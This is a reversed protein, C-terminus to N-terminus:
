RGDRTRMPSTTRAADGDDPEDDDGDDSDDADSDPTTSPAATAAPNAGATATPPTATTCSPSPGNSSPPSASSTSPARTAKPKAAVPGLLRLRVLRHRTTRQADARVPEGMGDDYHTRIMRVTKQQQKRRADAGDPDVQAVARRVADAHQAPTRGAAKPLM